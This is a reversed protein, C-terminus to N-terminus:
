LWCVRWGGWEVGLCLCVVMLLVVEWDVCVGAEEKRKSGRMVDHPCSGFYMQTFLQQMQFAASFSSLDEKQLASHLTHIMHIPHTIMIDPWRSIFCFVTSTMQSSLFPVRRCPHTHEVVAWIESPNRAIGWWGLSIFYSIFQHVWDLQSLHHFVDSKKHVGSVLRSM